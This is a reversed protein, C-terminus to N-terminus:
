ILNTIDVTWKEPHITLANSFRNPYKPHITLSSEDGFIFEWTLSRSFLCAAVINIEGKKYFRQSKTDGSDDTSNRTRQFDITLPPNFQSLYAFSEELNKLPSKEASFQYRPLGSERIEQPLIQLLQKLEKGSLSDLGQEISYQQNMSGKELLANIVTDQDIFNSRVCFVVFEKIEKKSSVPIVQINKCEVIIERGANTQVYFDKEFDSRAKRYSQIAGINKKTELYKELHKEAVAGKVAMYARPNEALADALDDAGLGTLKFLKNSNSLM